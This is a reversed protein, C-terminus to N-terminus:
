HNIMVKDNTTTKAHKSSNREDYTYIPLTPFHEKLDIVFEEIKKTVRTSGGQFNTPWGIIIKKIGRKEIEYQIISLANNASCKNNYPIVLETDSSGFALGVRKSGWDIVLLDFM